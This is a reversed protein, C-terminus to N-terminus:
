EQLGLLTRRFEVGQGLMQQLTNYSEKANAVSIREVVRTKRDFAFTSLENPQAEGWGKLRTLNKSDFGKGVKQTIEKLSSGFLKKTASTYVYLPAVVNFVRGEKFLDPVVTYLLGMLLCSIHAGDPDPDTLLFVSGIRRSKSYEVKPDFGISKLIAVVMRSDSMRETKAKLVNLVKGRLLLIEQFRRSSAKKASGGASQGEVFFLEREDRNKCGTSAILETPLTSKGGKKTKVAATLKRLLAADISQASLETARAIMQLVKSKNKKCWSTLAAELGDFQDTIKSTLRYKSQSDYQTNIMRVNCCLVMGALLEDLSYKANKKSVKAFSESIIKRLAVVHTGGGKTEVSNVSAYLSTTASQTPYLVVDVGKGSFVFPKLNEILPESKLVKAATYKAYQSLGKRSIEVDKGKLSFKFTIPTGSEDTKNKKPGSVFWSLKSVWEYIAKGNLKSGKEFVSIDPKFRVVTGQTWKKGQFSPVKTTNIVESTPVGKSYSQMQWSGSHKTYVEMKISLANVAALGIGNTGIATSYNDGTNQLKGGSHLETMIITLTDRKKDMRHPGTPIGRGTDYVTVYDGDYAIGIMDCHGNTAEDISNGVVEKVLHLLGESDTGGIYMGPRKRVGELGKLWTISDANYKKVV